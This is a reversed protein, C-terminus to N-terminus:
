NELGLREVMEGGFIRSRLACAAVQAADVGRHTRAADELARERAREAFAAAAQAQELDAAAVAPQQEVDRPVTAIAPGASVDVQEILLRDDVRLGDGRVSRATPVRPREGGVDEVPRAGVVALAPIGDDGVEEEVVEVASSQAAQEGAARATGVRDDRALGPAAAHREGGAVEDEKEARARHRPVVADDAHAGAEDAVFQRRCPREAVAGPLEGLVLVAWERVAEAGHPAARGRSSSM